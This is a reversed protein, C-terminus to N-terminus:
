DVVLIKLRAERIIVNLRRQTNQAIIGNKLVRSGDVGEKLTLFRNSKKKSAQFVSKFKILVEYSKNDDFCLIPTQLRQAM